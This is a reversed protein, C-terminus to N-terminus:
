YQIDVENKSLNIPTPLDYSPILYRTVLNVENSM